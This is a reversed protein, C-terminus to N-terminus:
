PPERPSVLTLGRMTMIPGPEATARYAIYTRSSPASGTPTLGSPGVLQGAIDTNREGSSM